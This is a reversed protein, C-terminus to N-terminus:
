VTYQCCPTAGDGVHEKLKTSETAFTEPPSKLGVSSEAEDAYCPCDSGGNQYSSCGLDTSSIAGNKGAGSHISIGEGTEVKKKESWRRVMSDQANFLIHGFMMGLVTSIFLPGSYTMIVLMIFYGM